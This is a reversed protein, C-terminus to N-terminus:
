RGYVVFGITMAWIVGVGMIQRDKLLAETPDGKGDKVIYIYRLLGFAAL